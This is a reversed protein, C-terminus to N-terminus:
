IPAKCFASWAALFAPADTANALRLVGHNTAVFDTAGTYGGFSNKANVRGCLALAPPDDSAYLREGEFLASGPDKLNDRVYQRLKDATAKARCEQQPAPKLKACAAPSELPPVQAKACGSAALALAVVIRAHM